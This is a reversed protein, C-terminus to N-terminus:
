SKLEDELDEAALQIIKIVKRPLYECAAAHFLQYYSEQSKRNNLEREIAIKTQKLKHGNASLNETTPHDSKTQLLTNNIDTVM